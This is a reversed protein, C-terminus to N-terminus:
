QDQLLEKWYEWNFPFFDFVLAPNMCSIQFFFRPSEMVKLSSFHLKKWSKTRFIRDKEM